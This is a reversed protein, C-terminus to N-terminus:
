CDISCLVTLTAQPTDYGGQEVRKWLRAMSVLVYAEIGAALFFGGAPTSGRGGAGRSSERAQAALAEPLVRSPPDEGLVMYLVEVAIAESADTSMAWRFRFLLRLCSLGAMDALSM